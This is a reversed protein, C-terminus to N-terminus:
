AYTSCADKGCAGCSHGRMEPLLSANAFVVGCTRGRVQAGEHTSAFIDM